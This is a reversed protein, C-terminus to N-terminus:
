RFRPSRRSPPEASNLPWSMNPMAHSSSSRIRPPWSASIGWFEPWDRVGVKRMANISGAFQAQDGPGLLILMGCDHYKAFGREDNIGLYDSWELWCSRSEHALACTEMASYLPRVVASSNSTSGYGAGALKDINLTRYGRKALSWAISTGVVGSGIIIVDSSNPV